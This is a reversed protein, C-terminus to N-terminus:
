IKKTNWIKLKKIAEFLYLNCAQLEKIDDQTLYDESVWWDEFSSLKGKFGKQHVFIDGFLLIYGENSLFNRQKDQYLSGYLYKDHEITIITPKKIKFPFSRIFDYSKEDIDVSLYTLDNEGFVSELITSWNLKLADSSILTTNKRNLYSQKYGVEIEVCIGQWGKAALAFTNNSIKADCSGIDLFTGDKKQKSVLFAFEDQRADSCFDRSKM